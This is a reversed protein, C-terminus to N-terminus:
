SVKVYIKTCAALYMYMQVPVSLGTLLWRILLEKFPKHWDLLEILGNYDFKIHNKKFTYVM